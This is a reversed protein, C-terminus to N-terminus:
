VGTYHRTLNYVASIGAGVAGALATKSVLNGTAVWYAVAAEIFTLAVKLAIKKFQDQTM